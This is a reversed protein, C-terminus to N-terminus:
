DYVHKGCDYNLIFVHDSFGLPNINGYRKMHMGVKHHQFHKMGNLSYKGYNRGIVTASMITVNFFQEFRM